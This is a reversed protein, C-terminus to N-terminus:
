NFSMEGQIRQLLSPFSSLFDADGTNLAKDKKLDSFSGRERGGCCVCVDKGLSRENCNNM